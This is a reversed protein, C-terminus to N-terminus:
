SANNLKRVDFASFKSPMQVWLEVKQSDEKTSTTRSGRNSKKRISSSYDFGKLESDGMETQIEKLHAKGNPNLKFTGDSKIFYRNAVDNLHQSYNQDHVGNSKAAQSLHEKSPVPEEYIAYYAWVYLLSFRQQQQKKNSGKYNPNTSILFGKSDKEFYNYADNDDSSAKATIEVTEKDNTEPHDLQDSKQSVFPLNLQQQPQTVQRSIKPSTLPVYGSLVSSVKDIASDTFSLNIKRSYNNDLQEEELSFMNMANSSSQEIDVILLIGCKLCKRKDKILYSDCELCKVQRECSVCFNYEEHIQIDCYPCNSM